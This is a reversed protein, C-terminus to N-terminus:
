RRLLAHRVSQRWAAHGSTYPCHERDAWLKPRRPSGDEEAEMPAAGTPARWDADGVRVGANAGRGNVEVMGDWTWEESKPAKAALVRVWSSVRLGIKGKGKRARESKTGRNGRWRSKDDMGENKGQRVKQM